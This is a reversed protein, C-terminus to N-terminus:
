ADFPIEFIRLIPINFFDKPSPLGSGDKSSKSRFLRLCVCCEAVIESEESVLLYGLLNSTKLPGFSRNGLDIM